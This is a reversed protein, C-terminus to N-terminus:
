VGIKLGTHPRKAKQDSNPDEVETSLFNAEAYTLREKRGSQPRVSGSTGSDTKTNWLYSVLKSISQETLRSGAM